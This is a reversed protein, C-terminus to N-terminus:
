HDPSKAARLRVAFGHLLNVLGFLTIATAVTIMLLDFGHRAFNTRALTWPDGDTAILPHTGELYERADIVGDRDLDSEEGLEKALEAPASRLELIRKKGIRWVLEDGFDNLIPSDVRTGPEFASRARGLLLMEAPTLSGVQGRATGDPGNSNVHCMACDVARGSNKRVFAQFESHSHGPLSLCVLAPVALVFRHLKM